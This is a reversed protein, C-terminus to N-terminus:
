SFEVEKNKLKRFASAFNRRFEETWRYRKKMVRSAQEINEEEGREKQEQVLNQLEKYWIWRESSIKKGTMQLVRKLLRREMEDIDRRRMLEGRDLAGKVYDVADSRGEEYAILSVCTAFSRLGRLLRSLAYPLNPDSPDSELINDLGWFFKQLALVTAEDFRTKPPREILAQFETRKKALFSQIATKVPVEERETSFDWKHKDRMNRSM